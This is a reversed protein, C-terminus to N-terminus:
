KEPQWPCMEFAGKGLKVGKPLVVMRLRLCGQFAGAGINAVSDPITVSTLAECGLFAGNGISTVSDPITVSTLALCGVFAESGINTVSHPITVSTLAGCARFTEEGISTVSDPITVSTLGKCYQFARYGVRVVPKGNLTAPLLLEEVIGPGLGTVVVKGQHVKYKLGRGTGEPLPGLLALWEWQKAEGHDPDLRLVREAAALMKGWDKKQAAEQVIQRQREVVDDKASQSSACGAACVLVLLIPLRVWDRRWVGPRSTEPRGIGADTGSGRVTGLTNGNGMMERGMHVDRMCIHGVGVEVTDGLVM